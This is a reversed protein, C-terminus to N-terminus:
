FYTLAPRQVFQTASLSFSESRVLVGVSHHYRSDSACHSPKRSRSAPHGNPLITPPSILEARAVTPNCCFRLPRSNRNARIRLVTHAVQWVRRGEPPISLPQM